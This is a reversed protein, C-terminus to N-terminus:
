DKNIRKKEKGFFINKREFVILSVLEDYKTEPAFYEM